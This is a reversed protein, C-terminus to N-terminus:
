TGPARIVSWATLDLLDSKLAECGAEGVADFTKLTPRLLAALLRPVGGALRLSSTTGSRSAFSPSPTGFLERPREETGWHIPSRLGAPPPSMSHTTKFLQGILGRAHARRHRGPRGIHVGVAQVLRVSTRALATFTVRRQWGAGSQLSALRNLLLGPAYQRLRPAM